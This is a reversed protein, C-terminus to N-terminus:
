EYYDPLEGRQRLAHWSNKVGEPRSNAPCNLRSLDPLNDLPFGMMLTFTEAESTVGYLSRVIGLVTRRYKTSAADDLSLLDIVRQGATTLAAITGDAGVVLSTMTPLELNRAGKSLNCSHCAYVLNEYSLALDHRLVRAEHHDLDFGSTNRM